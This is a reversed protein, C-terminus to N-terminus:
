VYCLIEIVIAKLIRLDLWNRLFDLFFTLWNPSYFDNKCFIDGGGGLAYYLMLVNENTKSVM